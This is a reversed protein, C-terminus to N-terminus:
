NKRSNSKKDNRGKQNIFTECLMILFQNVQNLFKTLRMLIVPNIFWFVKKRLEVMNMLLGVAISCSIM